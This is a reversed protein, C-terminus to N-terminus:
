TQSGYYKKYSRYYRYNSYYEIRRPSLGNLVVGLVENKGNRLARMYLRIHKRYARNFRCVYIVEDIREAILLSDTVAGLPPSDVIVLDYERKLRELLQGFSPSELLETPSKSRGGSCLLSLNEGVKIIGLSPNTALDGEMVSGGEFWTILGANNQQKFHRHLMPRRLDGDILLTKKGHRAFSGAVNCSVLTKGEGPITSTVLISKPFDLKSHIKISSYVSLFAEVGPAQKNGLLLSYKEEDKISGLDPIIGLLNAGIFSEVDWASKIRDDIFSLGVAVGIFVLVGIGVCTKTIAGPVPALLRGGTAEDLPHLPLKTSDLNKTTKTDSLRANISMYANKATEADRKLSQFPVGLEGLRLSEQERKKYEDDYTRVTQRAEELKTKLAAIANEQATNLQEETIAINNANTVMLPHRELYREALRAQEQHLEDLRARLTPISTYNSISSIELLNRGQAKFDEVQKIQDKWNSLALEAENRKGSVLKLADAIMNQNSDLSLGLQNDKMYQQLKADADEMEKKLRDSQQKLYDVAEENRGGANDRLYEMFKEVYRNAVLAAAEPDAHVVDVNIIFSNHPSTFSQSGLSVEAASTPSGPKLQKLAARQLILRESPTFSEFVKKRLRESRLRELNTNLDADSKMSQDVVGVTTLITDPKEFEMTAHAGYIAPEKMKLYGYGVAVLLALPLAIWLRERLIIYYDRLTRREIVDEDKSAQTPPPPAPPLKPNPEAM